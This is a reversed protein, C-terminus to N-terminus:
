LPKRAQGSNANLILGSCDVEEFDIGRIRKLQNLEEDNWRADPAGTIFWDSGNDALIMGYRQLARLITQNMPSYGSVNVGKKLRFRAGMPPYEPGSLKSARHRAPWVFANLTERVTFRIAHGIEGSAAEDYRVLGPLVPLGAADSSTWWAPRLKHSLLPFVAGSSARWTGDPNVWANFLEYLICNDTELVLVHRDGKSEPGNEVPANAPIPFPGPDSESADDYKIAVKKQEATVTIFPIGGKPNSGFDPHLSKAGGINAVHDASNARVPLRDVPTNWVNDQPFVPCGGIQPAAAWVPLAAAAWWMWGRIAM